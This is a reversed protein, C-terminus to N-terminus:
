EDHGRNIEEPLSMAAIMWEPVELESEAVEAESGNSGRMEDAESVTGGAWTSLLLGDDAGQDSVAVSAPTKAVQGDNRFSLGVVLLLCVAAAVVLRWGEARTDPKGSVGEGAVVPQSPVSAAGVLDVSRVVAECAEIEGEALRAEWGALEEGDLEGAVYAFALWDTEALDMVPDMVPDVVPVETGADGLLPQNTEAAM